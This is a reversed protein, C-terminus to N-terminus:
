FSKECLFLIGRVTPSVFYLMNGSFLLNLHTHHLKLLFVLSTYNM